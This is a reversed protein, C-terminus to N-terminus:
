EKKAKETIKALSMRDRVPKKIINFISGIGMSVLILGVSAQLNEFASAGLWTCLYLVMFPLLIMLRQYIDNKIKHANIKDSLQQKVDPDTAEALQQLYTDYKERYHKEFIAKATLVLAILLIIGGLTLKYGLPNTPTIYNYVIVGATGGFTLGFDLISYLIYQAKDTM